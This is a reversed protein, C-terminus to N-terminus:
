YLSKQSNNNTESKIYNDFGELLDFHQIVKLITEITPNKGRELNQITLRSLALKNALQEQSLGEKERLVRVLQGLANKVDKITLESLM